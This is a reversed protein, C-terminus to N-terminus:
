KRSFWYIVSGTGVTLQVTRGGKIKEIKGIAQGTRPDIRRLQWNGPLDTLDVAQAGNAYVVAGKQADKLIRVAPLSAPRMGSLANLMAAPVRPIASMSGGALLVAWAHTEAGDANYLVAKSPYKKKYELVAAYVSEFSPKGPKQIRAHQRPALNRGGEPAYVSGDARRHWYRIDIIDVAGAYRPDDLIADQVDKTTSLAVLANMGKEREWETIVDLWFQVFALPGTYEASLFQVVGSQGAFNDLCQRIYARHLAKRGPNTIDYFQDAVFIRKDGAYPPPEPFGTQNINNATRWPFDAYHAGAELINHQFYNQHYLVLGKRDALTVFERLRGWYWENYHTLDYKSLDDWAAEKGSRAFPQEYFPPWVEGDIRRIREHDDRRRDYWLGYNHDVIAINKAKLSDTMPGLADTFGKGTRGPVFRTIHSKAAQVDHPRVSGRWWPVEHRSGTVVEAGRVLWGNQISLPPMVSAAAAKSFGIEDITKIDGHETSVPSRQAAQDIWDTLRLAPGHSAAVMAAAQDLSPSSSAETENPLLFAHEGAQKGQRDSLQAYYLSRPRIHENANEWHGNGAFQAWIGFAFNQTGPPCFNDVRSASCQWMVSNAATWGAGQGDQGRNRLSLAQGDINVIDFLVGSAWSDISGSFNHSLHSECQVFANPGPACYGTAFDHNGNEAYCRQFLTQGGQTFFSNRRQGAIESVPQLSQCDEVTVKSVSEYLAVASGALHRFTVQRVWGNEVNEMTIGMWRHNEDKPNAQDFTSEIRMNEVGVQSIRGQWQYPIVLGGGFRSDLATTLPADITISKGSIATIVRDWTIDRQGPKWGLWGTEGGFEEMGLSKIWEATSPRVIRVHDGIKLANTNEIEFSMANVPVYNDTVRMKTKTKVDDGGVVRIVTERTRGDGLLVTGGDGIGQGRLVVGSKEIVIGSMVRHVGTGLLVAGRIGREDVPLNGVYDIAAQIRATADGERAPVTVRVPAQPIAETGARYGCYSFDVIRNGLSDQAYALRGDEAVTVPSPKQPKKQAYIAAPFFLYLGALSLITNLIM